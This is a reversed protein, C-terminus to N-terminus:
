FTVSLDVDVTHISGRLRFSVSGDPLKRLARVSPDIDAVKPFTVMPERDNPDGPTGRAIIKYKDSKARNIAGAITSRMAAIDEDDYSLKDLSVLLGFASKQIDDLVFDLAVTNDFFGYDPNGVKGEWFISRGAEEKYYSVKKADLNNIQTATFRQATVGTITKYALTWTGVNLSAVRGMVGASLKDAPDRHYAVVTRKYSEGEVDDGVDGNGAATDEVASDVVDVLYAKFPTAEIIEAASKVMSESNYSTDLYYWDNDVLMIEALDAAIGPDAHNQVITLNDVQGSQVAISFWEGPADATVTITDTELAGPTQVATFNKGVVANLQDVLQGMVSDNQGRSLTHTGGGAAATINILTGAMANAYSSALGFSNVTPAYVWVPTDAALGTPLAGGVNKLRYPGVGTQMGHAAEAILDTGVTVDGDVFAIDALPTVSITTDTVGEGEVSLEYKRGISIANHMSIAYRQTPPRTGRLVKAQKPHPSQGLIRALSRGEPSDVAIGDAIADALRNYTRSVEPFATTYGMVGITGFGQRGIGSNNVRLTVNIHTDITM